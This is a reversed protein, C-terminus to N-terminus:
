TFNMTNKKRVQVLMHILSVCKAASVFFNYVVGRLM